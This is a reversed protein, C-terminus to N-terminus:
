AFTFAEVAREIGKLQLAGLSTLPRADPQTANATRTPADILVQGAAAADCLRAARNVVAGVAAYELRNGGVVGVTAPGTAVGVGFGLPHDPVSFEAMLPACHHMLDHALHLARSAHDPTHIPAGVLMLVGDGAYDKITAGHAAAIEGIRDYYVQLGRIVQDSPVVEAFATFGRVDCAVVSLPRTENAISQRLGQRRVLDAVQPALFRRMFEGTQGQLIHFRLAGILLIILGAATLYSAGPDPLVLGSALLPAAVVFALLRAREGAEPKRFLVLRITFAMALMGLALPAAFLWFTIDAWAAERALGGLFYEARLPALATGLVAYYVALWQATRVLHDGGSTDLDGAPITRRIRLIWEAFFWFAAGDVIASLWGPPPLHQPDAAHVFNVDLFIASGVAILGLALMRSTPSRPDAVWFALGMGAALIALVNPATNAMIGSLPLWGDM